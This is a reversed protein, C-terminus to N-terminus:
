TELVKKLSQLMMAWNKESEQRAQESSNNDQTLEVRTADDGADSLEITVTHYNEPQDPKGALPSWHSYQLMRGPKMTLIVGKDEFKKGKWEGKWVIPSGERWDSRVDAGFMYRKITAPDILAQWVDDRSADIEVESKAIQGKEMVAKEM